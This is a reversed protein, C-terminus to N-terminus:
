VRKLRWIATLRIYWAFCNGTVRGLRGFSDSIGVLLPGSLRVKEAAELMLKIVNEPSTVGRQMDVICDDTLVTRAAKIEASSPM